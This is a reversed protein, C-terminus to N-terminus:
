EAVGTVIYRHYREALELTERVRIRVATQSSDVPLPLTQVACQLAIARASENPSLKSM